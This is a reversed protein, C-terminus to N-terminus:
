VIKSSDLDKIMQELESKSIKESVDSSYNKINEVKVLGKHIETTEKGHFLPYLPNSILYMNKYDWTQSIEDESILVEHLKEGPRIGVIEQGTNGFINQVSEVLDLIGYSRMKPVFIESGKGSVTANLIFELAENMTISFRTM